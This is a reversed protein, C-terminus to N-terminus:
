IFDILPNKLFTGINFESNNSAEKHIGIVKNTELNLIPSGSSGNHTSCTHKIESNDLSTLLGYSVAANRGFPYQLIYLSKNEYIFENNDKLLKDDLELFNNINDDENIEILTIDDEKNFYTKRKIKLDITKLIDEDNLLLNIKNNENINKKNLIHFNTMLFNKTEDNEFPIKCFFGTGYINNMKIKCICNMMQNLITKTGLISVPEVSNKLQKEIEM